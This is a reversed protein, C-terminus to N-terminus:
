RANRTAATANLTSQARLAEAEKIEARKAAILGSSLGTIDKEYDALENQLRSLVTDYCSAAATFRESAPKWSGEASDLLGLYRESDCDARNMNLAEEFFKRSEALRNLSFSAM